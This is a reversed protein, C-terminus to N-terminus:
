QTAKFSVLQSSIVEQMVFLTFLLLFVLKAHGSGAGPPRTNLVLGGGYVQRVQQGHQLCKASGAGAGGCPGEVQMQNRDAPSDLAPFPTLQM